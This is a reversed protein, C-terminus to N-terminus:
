PLSPPFWASIQPCSCGLCLPHLTLPESLFIRPTNSSYTAFFGPHCFPPPPYLSFLQLPHQALHHSSQAAPDQPDYL